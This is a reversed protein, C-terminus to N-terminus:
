VLRDTDYVSIYARTWQVDEGRGESFSGAIGVENPDQRDDEPRQGQHYRELIDDDNEAGVVISFSSSEAGVRQEAAIYITRPEPTPM